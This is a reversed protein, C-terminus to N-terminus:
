MITHTSRINKTPYQLRVYRTQQGMKLQKMEKEENRHSFVVVWKRNKKRKKEKRKRKRKHKMAHYHYIM